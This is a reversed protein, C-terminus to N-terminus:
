KSIKHDQVEFRHEFKYRSGSFEGSVVEGQELGTGWLTSMM